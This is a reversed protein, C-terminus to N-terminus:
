RVEYYPNLLADQRQRVFHEAQNRTMPGEKMLYDVMDDDNSTEDNHLVANVWEMTRTDFRNGAARRCVKKRGAAFLKGNKSIRVHRIQHQGSSFRQNGPYDHQVIEYDRGQKVRVQENLKSRATMENSGKYLIKPGMMQYGIKGWYAETKYEVDSGPNHSQILEILYRKNHGPTQNFMMVKEEVRDVM